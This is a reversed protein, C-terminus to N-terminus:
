DVKVAVQVQEKKMECITGATDCVVFMADITVPAEAAAKGEFGCAFAPSTEKGTADARGLQQKDLAIAEPASLSLRLPGKENIKYGEAPRIHVALTGREGKAVKATTESVDLVFTKAEEEAAAAGPLVALSALGSLLGSALVLSLRLPAASPHM